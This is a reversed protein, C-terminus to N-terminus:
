IRKNTETSPLNQEKNPSEKGKFKKILRKVEDSNRLNFYLFLAAFLLYVVSLIIRVNLWLDYYYSVAVIIAAPLMLMAIRVYQYEIRYLKQSVALTLAFILFNATMISLAAGVAGIKPTLIFNM